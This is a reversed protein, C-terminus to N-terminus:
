LLKTIKIIEVLNKIFTDVDMEFSTCKGKTTSDLTIKRSKEVYRVCQTDSIWFELDSLRSVGILNNKSDEDLNYDSLADVVKILDIQNDLIRLIEDPVEAEDYVKKLLEKAKVVVEVREKNEKKM